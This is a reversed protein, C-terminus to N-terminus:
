AGRPRTECGVGDGDGDLKRSYGPDTSRIPRGLSNWVEKCNAYPAQPQPPTPHAAPQPPMYPTLTVAGAQARVEIGRLAFRYLFAAIAGRETKNAPRFTSDAWGTTISTSALWLISTRHESTSIDHFSITPTFAPSGAFRYLFTAIADRGIPTEPRFSKDPWGTTIGSSALWTIERYFQHNTPVDRFPSQAPPTFSPCGAYRYLFAAFAARSVSQGPKFTGDSWGTTIGTRSLWSIERLFPHQATVDHFSAPGSGLSCQGAPLNPGPDPAPNSDPAPSPASSSHSLSALFDKELNTIGDLGPVTQAPCTNLIAEMRDHEAPTVWLGYKAKVGIQRATYECLFHKNPPEWTAIDGDGKRANAQGDVALLNYPDNAFERRQEAALHQAGTQWANSLAVVHDIQVATSTGNGRLFDIRTATYPDLLTGSLVVCGHTGDKYVVNALDRDLVDNRTDCGNRDTDAWDPDFQDRSYDTKPARGKIELTALASLANRYAVPTSSPTTTALEVEGAQVSGQGDVPEDALASHPSGLSALALALAAFVGSFRTHAHAAM